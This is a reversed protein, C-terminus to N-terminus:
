LTVDPAELTQVCTRNRGLRKAEYLAQDAVEVLLAPNLDPEAKGVGVGVSVTLQQAFPSGEHRIKRDWIATRLRDAVIQAGRLNTGPLMFVFEEGGYRALLDDPRHAQQELVDTVEILCEDGYAHGYLDNITKFLDLDIMLVAFDDRRRAARKWAKQLAADFRRRNAVGTLPDQMSLQELRSNAERLQREREILLVQGDHVALQVLAAHLGQLLLVLGLATLALVPYQTAVQSALLFAAAVIFLPSLSDVLWGARNLERVQKVSGPTVPMFLSQWGAFFFPADWSLDFITGGPLHWHQNAYVMGIEIPLFMWMAVCFLRIRRRNERNTWVLMRTGAALAILGLEGFKIWIMAQTAQSVSQNIGYFRVCLLILIIVSIALDLLLVSHTSRTDRTSSVNLLLPLGAAAYLIESPYICVHLVPGGPYPYIGAIAGAVWFLCAVAFWFWSTRELAPLRRIRWLICFATVLPVAAMGVQDLVPGVKWPSALRLGDYALAVILARILTKQDKRMRAQWASDDIVPKASVSTDEPTEDALRNRYEEEAAQM